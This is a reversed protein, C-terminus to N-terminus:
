ERALNECSGVIVIKDLKIEKLQDCVFLRCDLKDLVSIMAEM